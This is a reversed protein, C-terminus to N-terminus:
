LGFRCLIGSHFLSLNLPYSQGLCHKTTALSTSNAIFPWSFDVRQHCQWGQSGQRRDGSADLFPLCTPFLNKSVLGVTQFVSWESRGQETLPNGFGDPWRWFLYMPVYSTLIGGLSADRKRESGSDEWINQMDSPQSCAAMGWQCANRRTQHLWSTNWAKLFLNFWRGYSKKKACLHQYLRPLAKATARRRQRDWRESGQGTRCHSLICHLLAKSVSRELDAACTQTSRPACHNCTMAWQNFAFSRNWSICGQWSSIDCCHSVVNPWCHMLWAVM